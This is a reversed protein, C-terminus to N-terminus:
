EYIGSPEQELKKHWAAELEPQRNGEADAWPAPDMGYPALLKKAQAMDAKRQEKDWAWEVPALRYKELLRRSALVMEKPVPSSGPERPRSASDWAKLLDATSYGEFNQPLSQENM